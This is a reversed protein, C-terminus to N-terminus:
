YPTSSINGFHKTSPKFVRWSLSIEMTPMSNPDDPEYWEITMADAMLFLQPNISQQSYTPLTRLTTPWIMFKTTTPVIRAVLLDRRIGILANCVM